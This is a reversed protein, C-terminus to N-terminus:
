LKLETFKTDQTSTFPVLYEVLCLIVIILLIQHLHCAM